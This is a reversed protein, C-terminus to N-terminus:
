MRAWIEERSIIGVNYLIGYYIVICYIGTGEYENRNQDVM